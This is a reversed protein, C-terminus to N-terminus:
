GLKNTEREKAYYRLVERSNRWGGVSFFCGACRDRRKVPTLKYEEPIQVSWIETTLAASQSAITIRRSWHSATLM